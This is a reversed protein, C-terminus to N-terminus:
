SENLKGVFTWRAPLTELAANLRDLESKVAGEKTKAYRWGLRRIQLELLKRVSDYIGSLYVRLMQQQGELELGMDRRIPRLSDRFGDVRWKPHCYPALVDLAEYVEPTDINREKSELTAAELIKLADLIRM